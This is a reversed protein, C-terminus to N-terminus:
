NRPDKIHEIYPILDLERNENLEQLHDKGFQGMEYITKCVALRIEIDDGYLLKDLFDFDSEDGIQELIHVIELKNRQNEREYNQKIIGKSEQLGLHRIAKYAFLRTTEDEHDLKAILANANESQQYYDIMRICFDQVDKNDSDIWTGFSPVEKEHLKVFNLANLQAWQSFPRKLNDLFDFSATEDLYVYAIQAENRVFDNKDRIYRVIINKAGSPYMNALERIGQVRKHFSVASIKRISEYQLGLRLYLMLIRDSYEGSLNNLYNFLIDILIKRGTPNKVQSLKDIADQDAIEEFLFSTLVKEFRDSLSIFYKERTNKILNTVLVIGAVVFVNFLFTIVLAVLVILLSVDFIVELVYDCVPEAKPGFVRHSLETLKVKAEEKKTTWFSKHPINGSKSELYKRREEPDLLRQPDASNEALVVQPSTQFRIQNVSELEQSEPVAIALQSYVLAILLFIIHSLIRRM